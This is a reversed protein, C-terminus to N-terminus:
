ISSVIQFIIAGTFVIIFVMKEDSFEFLLFNYYSTDFNTLFRIVVVICFDILIEFTIPRM